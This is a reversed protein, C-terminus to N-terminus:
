LLTERARGIVNGIRELMGASDEEWREWAADGLAEALPSVPSGRFSTGEDWLRDLYSVAMRAAKDLPDVQEAQKAPWTGELAAKVTMHNLGTRRGLERLSLDPYNEHLWVAFQKRDHTSLPLGHAMNHAFSSEYGAGEEVLAPLGVIGLRRAAEVRHFGDILFYNGASDRSVVIPPWDEPESEMLARVHSEKVSAYEGNAGNIYRPQFDPDITLADLTISIQSM